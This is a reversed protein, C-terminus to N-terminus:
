GAAFSPMWPLSLCYSGQDQARVVEPLHLALARPPAASVAAEQNQSFYTTNQGALELSCHGLDNYIDNCM